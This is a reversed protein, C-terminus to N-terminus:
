THAWSPHPPYAPGGRRTVVPRFKRLPPGMHGGPRERRRAKPWGGGEDSPPKKHFRKKPGRQHPATLRLASQPTRQDLSSFGETMQEAFAVERKLPPQLRPGRRLGAAVAAPETPLTPAASHTLKRRLRFRPIHLKRRRLPPRQGGAPARQAGRRIIVCGMHRPRRSAGYRGGPPFTANASCIVSSPAVQRGGHLPAGIHAGLVPPRVRLDAGVSM